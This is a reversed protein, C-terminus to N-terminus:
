KAKKRMEAIGEKIMEVAMELAERADSQGKLTTIVADTFPQWVAAMEPVNPMPIGITAQAAMVQADNNAKVEPLGLVDTRPPVMAERGKFLALLSEKTTLYRILEQAEKKNKSFASVWYAQVTVFPRSIRGGPMKPILAMGYNVKQKRYEDLAWLGNVVAGAKGEIFLSNAVSYDTGEPILGSTRLEKLFNLAAAAGETGLGIDNVDLGDPGSKFVYAGHGSFFAWDFYVNTLDFLFGYKGGKTKERVLKLFEEISEPVTPYFDKNYFLAVTEFAYPLGYMKGKYSVADITVPVFSKKVEETATIPEVLGAIAMPGLQDHPTTFVDPGKGAPGDLTIKGKQALRSIGIVEVDIGTKTAFGKCIDAIIHAELPDAWLVLRKQAGFAGVSFAGVTFLVAGLVALLRLSKAM